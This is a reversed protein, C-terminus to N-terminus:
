RLSYRVMSQLTDSTDSLNDPPTSLLLIGGAIVLLGMMLWEFLRPNIWNVTKYGVWVGIPILLVSWAISLLVDVELIGAFLYGPVKLVNIVTFFLTITGVFTAPKVKQLLLYATMPPGGSNALASAIGSILGALYGHWLRPSYEVKRLVYSVLKYAVIFLTLSGLLRRLVIDPLSALM